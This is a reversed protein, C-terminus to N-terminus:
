NMLRLKSELTLNFMSFLKAALINPQPLCCLMQFLACFLLLPVPNGWGSNKCLKTKLHLESNQLESPQASYVCVHHGTSASQMPWGSVEDVSSARARIRVCVRQHQKRATHISGNVDVPGMQKANRQADQTSSTHTPCPCSNNLRLKLSLSIFEQPQTQTRPQTGLPTWRQRINRVQTDMRYGSLPGSVYRARRCVFACSCLETMPVGPYGNRVKAFTEFMPILVFKIFGIQATPKTVKERDM